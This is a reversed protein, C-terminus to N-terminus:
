RHQVPQRRQRVVVVAVVQRHHVPLQHLRLQSSMPERTRRVLQWAQMRIVQVM